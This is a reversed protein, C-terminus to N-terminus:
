RVIFNGAQIPVGFIRDPPAGAGEGNDEIGRISIRRGVNDPFRNDQIIVGGVNAKNPAVMVITDIAIVWQWGRLRPDGNAVYQNCWTAIGRVGTADQWANVSVTFVFGNPPSLQVVGQGRVEHILEGGGMAGAQASALTPVLGIAVMALLLRTKM